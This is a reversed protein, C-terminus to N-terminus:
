ASSRRLRADASGSLRRANAAEDSAAPNAAAVMGTAAEAMAVDASPSSAPSTEILAEVARNGAIARPGLAPLVFGNDQDDLFDEADVFM